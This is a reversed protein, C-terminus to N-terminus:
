DKMLALDIARVTFEALAEVERTIRDGERHALVHQVAEGLPTVNFDADHLGHRVLDDRVATSPSDNHDLLVDIESASLEDALAKVYAQLDEALGVMDRAGLGHEVIAAGLDLVALGPAPFPTGNHVISAWCSGVRPNKALAIIRPDTM